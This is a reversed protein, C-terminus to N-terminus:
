RRIDRWMEKELRCLRMVPRRLIRNTEWGNRTSRGARSSHHLRREASLAAFRETRARYFNAFSTRPVGGHYAMAEINLRLRHEPDWENVNIHGPRSGDSAGPSYDAPVANKSRFPDMPIVDLRNQPLRGFLKPLQKEMQRTYQTYLQLVQEGSAAYFKRDSKIHENLSALDNFGLKRALVLMEAETEALQKLGIQHIEEPSLDTTTM